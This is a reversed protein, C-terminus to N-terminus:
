KKTLADYSRECATGAIFARDAFGGIGDAAQDLRRQVDALLDATKDTAAGGDAANSDKGAGCAALLARARALQARLSDGAARAGDLQELANDKQRNAEDAIEKQAEYRQREDQRANEAADAVAKANAQREQAITAVTVAHAAREDALKASQWALAAAMAAVAGAWAMWPKFAAIMGGGKSAHGAHQCDRRGRDM